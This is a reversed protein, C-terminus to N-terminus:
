HLRKSYNTIGAKYGASGFLRHSPLNDELVAACVRSVDPRSGSLWKEAALLLEAGLGRTDQGPVMYISLEAEGAAIDFRVVGVPQGDLEGILLVRNVDYLVADFWSKHTSWDLPASDRSKERIAPHNRWNLIQEADAKAAERIAISFVGMARVVRETGRGDVAAMANRSIAALLLPNKVCAQLHDVLADCSECPTDPAYLLGALAADHVLQRQNETLALTICPLGVCCREWTATGGAGISLDAESMLGAMRSTGVHCAFGQASCATIVDRRHRQLPTIIVDVQLDDSDIVSLAQVAERTRNTADVGGFFVLVKRVTGSRPSLTKRASRFEPRLLAYRPGLLLRSREPVRGLYRTDGNEYLNQDLLLDCEHGRNALDDIVMVQDVHPRLFSEWRSGLAYHDVILWDPRAEFTSIAETTDRADQEWTVGLWRAYGGETGRRSSTPDGFTLVRYGRQEVLDVLNGEHLRCAFRM